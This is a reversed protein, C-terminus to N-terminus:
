AVPAPVPPRIRLSPAVASREYDVYHVRVTVERDTRGSIARDLADPVGPFEGDAPRALGVTVVTEESLAPATYEVTISLVELSRYRDQALTDTVADNVSREFASQQYTLGGVAAVTGVVLLLTVGVVVARVPDDVALPSEDAGDPRYGLYYLMLGGGANVGITSVVLLLLAGSAVVANGRTIGIGVAAATPILAAAIMVGVITAEGKTALGFAGAAGAALGVAIALSSPSIRLVMLEMRAVALTAPVADLRKVAWSVATATVVAVGIGLAQMHISNIFMAGDNRVLGVNATLVPSVIPAIVMSGVVVAPSGLLLGATAVVASLVMMWVYSPTNRRLDKAKSRLAAPALRNPTKAWRDQIEDVHEFDAFETAVSVTYTGEEFGAEEFDALVHEVADAPVVFNIAVRDGQEGAGDVVTYGFQQERLIDVLTGHDEEPVSV